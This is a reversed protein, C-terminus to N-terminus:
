PNIVIPRVSLQQSLFGLTKTLNENQAELGTIKDRLHLNELQLDSVQKKLSELQREDVPYLLRDITQKPTCKGITGDLYFTIDRDDIKINIDIGAEVLIRGMEYDKDLLAYHLLSYKKDYPIANIAGGTGKCKIKGIPRKEHLCNLDWKFDIKLLEKLFAHKHQLVAHLLLRQLIRNYFIIEYNDIKQEQCQKFLNNFDEVIEKLCIIFMTKNEDPVLLNTANRINEKVVVDKIDNELFGSSTTDLLGKATPVKTIDYDHLKYLYYIVKPNTLERPISLKYKFIQEAILMQSEENEGIINYQLLQRIGDYKLIVKLFDPKNVYPNDSYYLRRDFVVYIGCKQILLELIEPTRCDGYPTNYTMNYEIIKNAIEVKDIYGILQGFNTSFDLVQSRYKVILDIYEISDLIWKRGQDGYAQRMRDIKSGLTYGHDDYIKYCYTEWIYHLAQEEFGAKLLSEFIKRSYIISDQKFQENEKYIDAIREGVSKTEMANYKYCLREFKSYKM